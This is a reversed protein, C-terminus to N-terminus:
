SSWREAAYSVVTCFLDDRRAARRLAEARGSSMGGQRSMALEVAARERLPLEEMDEPDASGMVMRVANAFYAGKPIAAEIRRAQEEDGARLAEGLLLLTSDPDLFGESGEPAMKLRELAKHGDRHLAAVVQIASRRRDDHVKALKGKPVEGSFRALFMASTFAPDGALGRVVSTNVPDGALRAVCGLNVADDVSAVPQAKLVALADSVRGLAVLAEAEYQTFAPEARALEKWLPLAQAFSGDVHLTWAQSRLLYQHDPWRKRFLALQARADARRLTRVWLYAADPSDPHEEYLRRYIARIERFRGAGRYIDQRLRHLDIKDHAQLQQEVWKLAADEGYAHAELAHLFRVDTADDLNSQTTALSLGPEPSGSEILYSACQRWGGPALDLNTRWEVQRGSSLEIRSPPERFPFDVGSREVLTQGCFVEPRPAEIHVNANEATYPVRQLYLPAAGRVNWVVVSQGSKLHLNGEEITKGGADKILVHHEGTPFRHTAFGQSPVEVTTGGMQATVAQDLGNAFTVNNHRAAEVATFGGVAFSAVAGLVLLQRWIYATAGFPVSGFFEYQKGSSRCLYQRLPFVPVFLLTIFLTGIVTGDSPDRSESGYVRTGMGNFTFMTPAKKIPELFLRRNALLSDVLQRQQKFRGTLRGWWLARYVRHPKGSQLARALRVDGALVELEPIRNLM